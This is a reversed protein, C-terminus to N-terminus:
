MEETNSDIWITLSAELILKEQQFVEGATIFFDDFSDKTRINILLNQEAFVDGYFVAKSIGVLYGKPPEKGCSLDEYGKSAAYSQAILEILILREIKGSSDIMFPCNTKFCAETVASTGDSEILRDIVLMPKRHPILIEADLPLKMM